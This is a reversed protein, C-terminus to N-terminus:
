KTMLVAAVILGAVILIIKTNDEKEVAPTPAPTNNNNTGFLGSLFSLVAAGGEGGRERKERTQREGRERAKERETKMRVNGNKDTTYNENVEEALEAAQTMLDQKIDIGAM